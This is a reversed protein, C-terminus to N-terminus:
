DEGIVAPRGAPELVLDLDPHDADVHRDRNRHGVEAEAAPLRRQEPVGVGVAHVARVEEGAALGDGTAPEVGAVAADFEAERLVLLGACARSPSLFVTISGRSTAVAHLLAPSVEGIHLGAVLGTGM